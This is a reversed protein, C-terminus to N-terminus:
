GLNVWNGSKTKGYERRKKARVAEEEAVRQREARAKQAYKVASAVNGAEARLALRAEKDTYGLAM